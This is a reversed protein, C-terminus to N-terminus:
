SILKRFRNSFISDIEIGEPAILLHTVCEVIQILIAIEIGEPAILLILNKSNFNLLTVMEIGEPAILLTWGVASRKM